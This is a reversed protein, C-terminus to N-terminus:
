WKACSQWERGAKEMGRAVLRQYSDGFPSADQHISRLADLYRIRRVRGSGHKSLSTQGKWKGSLKVQLDLGVCFLVQDIERQLQELNEGSVRKINVFHM